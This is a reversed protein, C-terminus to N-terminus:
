VHERGIQYQHASFLFMGSNWFYGDQALFGEAVAKAPKEVFQKVRRLPARFDPHIDGARIYGYGTDPGTPVIGFLVLAGERASPAAALVARRLGEVDRVVHDAPTVLM